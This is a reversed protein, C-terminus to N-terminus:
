AMEGLKVPELRLEFYGLAQLIADHARRTDIAELVSCFVSLSLILYM